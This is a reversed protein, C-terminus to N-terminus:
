LRLTELVLLSKREPRLLRFLNVRFASTESNAAQFKWKLFQCCLCDESRSLFSEETTLSDFCM